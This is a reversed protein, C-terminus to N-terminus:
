FCSSLCFIPQHVSWWEVLNTKVSMDSPLDQLYHWLEKSWNEDVEQMSIKCCHHEYNAMVDSDDSEEDLSNTDPVLLANSQSRNKSYKAM